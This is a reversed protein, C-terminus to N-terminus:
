GHLYMHRNDVNERGVHRVHYGGALHHLTGSGNHLLQNFVGYIGAGAVDGYLDPAAAGGIDADAIVAAAHCGLIRAHGEHAM